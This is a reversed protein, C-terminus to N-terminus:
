WPSKSNIKIIIKNTNEVFEISLKNPFFIVILINKKPINKPPTAQKNDPDFPGNIPAEAPIDDRNNKKSKSDGFKPTLINLNEISNLYIIAKINNVSKKFNIDSACTLKYDKNRDIFFRRRKGVVGLGIIGVKIKKKSKKKLM